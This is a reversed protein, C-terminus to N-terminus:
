KDKPNQVTKIIENLWKKRKRESSTKIPGFVIPKLTKFGCFDFIHMKFIKLIPAGMFYKLIFPPTDTTLIVRASKNQILKKYGNRGVYKFTVGSAFVYDIYAKLSAPIMGWWLPTIIILEDCWLVDQQAKKIDEIQTETKYDPKAFSLALESTNHIIIEDNLEKAANAYTECIANCFSNKEPNGMIILIKSM